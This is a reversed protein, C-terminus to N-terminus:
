LWNEAEETLNVLWKLAKIVASKQLDERSIWKSPPEDGEWWFRHLGDRREVYAQRDPYGPLLTVGEKASHIDLADLLMTSNGAGRGQKSPLLNAGGNFAVFRFYHTQPVKDRRRSASHHVLSYVLGDVFQVRDRVGAAYLTLGVSVPVDLWLSLLAADEKTEIADAKLLVLGRALLREAIDIQDQNM